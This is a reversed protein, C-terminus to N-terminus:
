AFDKRMLIADWVEGTRRTVDREFREIERFGTKRYLARAAHNHPFVHLSLAAVGRQRAWTFTRELLAKGIGRGRYSARVFMGVALGAHKHYFVGISGVLLDGDRAVWFPTEDARGIADLIRTRRQERDFGPETGLWLLEATVEALLDIIDEVDDPIAYRIDVNIL